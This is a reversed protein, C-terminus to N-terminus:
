QVEDDTLSLLKKLRHNVGSRSINDKTLKGLDRLSMEPNELRLVAIEKLEPSLSNFSKSKMLKRIATIQRASAEATKNINHLESNIKRITNNRVQKEVKTNMVFMSSNFAGIYTLFDAIQESDKIYVIFKGQRMVSKPRLSCNEVECLLTLLDNALNRYPVKFEIHYGKEPNTVSGCSLFVGRLFASLQGDNSINARNIRLSVESQSYGFSEFIRNCDNEYLVKMTVLHNQSSRVKLGASIELVPAYLQTLIGELKDSIYKNETTFVIENYTFKKSFLLMGYSLSLMQSEDELPLLCLEKKTDFSFSM